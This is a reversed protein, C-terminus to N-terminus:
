KELFAARHFVSTYRGAYGVAIAVIVTVSPSSISICNTIIFIYSSFVVTYAMSLTAWHISVINHTPGDLLFAFMIWIEILNCRDWSHRKMSFSFYCSYSISMTFSHHSSFPSSSCRM